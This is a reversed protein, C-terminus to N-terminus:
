PAVKTEQIKGEVDQQVVFRAKPSSARQEQTMRAVEAVSPEKMGVASKGSAVAEDYDHFSTPEFKGDNKGFVNPPPNWVPHHQVGTLASAGGGGGGAGGGSATLGGNGGGGAVGGGSVVRQAQASGAGFCLILIAIAIIEAVFKAMKM